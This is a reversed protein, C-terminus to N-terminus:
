IHIIISRICSKGKYPHGLNLTTPTHQSLFWHRHCFSSTQYGTNAVQAKMKTVGERGVTGPGRFFAISQADLGGFTQASLAAAITLAPPPKPPPRDCYWRRWVPTKKSRWKMFLGSNKKFANWGGAFNSLSPFKISADALAINFCTRIDKCAYVNRRWPLCQFVTQNPPYKALM